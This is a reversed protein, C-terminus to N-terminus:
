VHRLQLVNIHNFGANTPHRDVTDHEQEIGKAVDWLLHCVTQQIRTALASV